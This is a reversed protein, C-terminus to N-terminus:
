RYTAPKVADSHWLCHPKIYSTGPLTSPMEFGQTDVEGATILTNLHFNGIFYHFVANIPMRLDDSNPPQEIGDFKLGYISLVTHV